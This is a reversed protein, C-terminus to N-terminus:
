WAGFHSRDETVSAMRGVEMMDPYAWSGPRSLPVDGQFKRTTLLNSHMSHWNSRIDGSTRYFNYPCDSVDTTGTCPGDTQNPVIWPRRPPPPGGGPTTSGWHCNEIM